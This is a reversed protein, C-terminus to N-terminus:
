KNEAPFFKAARQNIPNNTWIPAADGAVAAERTGGAEPAADSEELTALRGQFSSLEQQLNDLMGMVKENMENIITTMDNLHQEMQEEISPGAGADEGAAEAAAEPTAKTKSAEADLHADIEAATSNEPLGFFAAVKKLNITKM